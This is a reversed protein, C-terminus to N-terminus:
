SFRRRKITLVKIKARKQLTKMAIKYFSPIDANKASRPPFVKAFIIFIM